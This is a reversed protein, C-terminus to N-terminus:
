PFIQLIKHNGKHRVTRTSVIFGTAVLDIFERCVRVTSCGNQQAVIIISLDSHPKGPPFNKEVPLPIVLEIDAAVAINRKTVTIRLEFRRKLVM